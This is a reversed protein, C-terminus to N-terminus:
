ECGSFMGRMDIVKQTNFNSLNLSTLSICDNFMFNMMSVNQTNFSSLNINILSKCGDFMRAMGFVKQTDFNLLNLNTLSECDEFMECMNIVNKTNFNSLDVNTLSSCGRFMAILETVNETNFSSLNLNTLSSCGIFMCRMNTVNPTNFNLLNLNTLSDCAAFMYSTKTLNNNFSYEIIYKGAEKFKYKYTFEIIKGNIKLEINNMIEKENAYINDEESNRWHSNRNCNEYSNIIQIDENINDKKICIEGIIINKKPNGNNNIINNNNNNIKNIFDTLPYKLLTGYNYNNLPNLREKHIGIVKNNESNLIPSGSSGNDTSCSHQINYKEIKNLIGNSISAEEGNM